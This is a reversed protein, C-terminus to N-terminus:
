PVYTVTTVQSLSYGRMVRHTQLVPRTCRKRCQPCDFDESLRSQDWFVSICQRCFTHGCTISVPDKLVQECVGCRSQVQILNDWQSSPDSTVAEDTIKPPMVISTNSKMSVCSPEPSAASGRVEIEEDLSMKSATDEDEQGKSILKLHLTKSSKM